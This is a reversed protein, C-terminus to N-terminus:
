TDLTLGPEAVGCDMRKDAGKSAEDVRRKQSPNGLVEHGKEECDM